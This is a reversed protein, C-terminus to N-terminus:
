SRKHRKSRRRQQESNNGRQIGRKKTTQTIATNGLLPSFLRRSSSRTARIDQNPHHTSSNQNSSRRRTRAAEEVEEKEEVGAMVVSASDESSSAASESSSTSAQAVLAARNYQSTDIFREVEEGGVDVTEKRYSIIAQQQLAEATGPQVASSPIGFATEIPTQGSELVTSNVLRATLRLRDALEMPEDDGRQQLIRSVQHQARRLRADLAKSVLGTPFMRVTTTTTELQGFIDGLDKM